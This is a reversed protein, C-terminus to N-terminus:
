VSVLREKKREKEEEEVERERERQTGRVSEICEGVKGWDRRGGQRTM